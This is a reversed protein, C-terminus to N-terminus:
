VRRLKGEKEALRVAKEGAISKQRGVYSSYVGRDTQEKVCVKGGLSHGKDSSLETWSDKVPRKRKNSADIKALRAQHRHQPTVEEDKKKFPM